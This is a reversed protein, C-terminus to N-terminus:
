VGSPWLVLNKGDEEFGMSLLISKYEWYTAPKGNIMEIIIKRKQKLSAPLRM